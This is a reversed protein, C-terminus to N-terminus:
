KILSAPRKNNKGPTIGLSSRLNEHRAILQDEHTTKIAKPINNGTNIQMLKIIQYLCVSYNIQKTKNSTQPHQKVQKERRFLTIHNLKSHLHQPVKRCFACKPKLSSYLLKYITFSNIRTMHFIESYSHLPLIPTGALEVFRFIYSLDPSILSLTDSNNGKEDFDNCM